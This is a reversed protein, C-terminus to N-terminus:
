SLTSRQATARGSTGSPQPKPTSRASSQAPYRRELAAAVIQEVAPIAAARRDAVAATREALGDLGVVDFGASPEVNPPAGVDIITPLWTPRLSRLHILRQATLIPSPAAVATVVTGARVLADDLAAYDVTRAGIESALTQATSSTRNTVVLRDAAVKALRRSITRGAPGAGIILIEHDPQGVADAVASGVGAGGVSIDTQARVRKGVAFADRFIRRTLPGTSGAVGADQFAQRLQGLIDVDGLLSSELGAAVRLLHAVADRGTLVFPRAADALCDAPVGQFSVGLADHWIKLATAADVGAPRAILLETRDCTAVVVHEHDPHSLNIRERVRVVDAPGLALERSTGGTGAASVGLLVLNHHDIEPTPHHFSNTM